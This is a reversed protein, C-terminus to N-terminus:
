DWAVKFVCASRGKHICENHNVRINKAGAMTLAKLGWGITGRCLGEGYVRGQEITFQVSKKKSSLMIARGTDFYFQYVRPVAHAVITPNNFLLLFKMFININQEAVEGVIHSYYDTKGHGWRATIALFLQNFIHAPVRDNDKLDHLLNQDPTSFDQTLQRMGEQGYHRGIYQMIGKILLAKVSPPNVPQHVEQSM